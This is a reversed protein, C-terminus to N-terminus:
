CYFRILDFFNIQVVKFTLLYFVSVEFEEFDKWFVIANCVPKSAFDGSKTGM